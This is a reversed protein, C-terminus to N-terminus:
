GPERRHGPLVARQGLQGCFIALELFEIDLNALGHLNDLAAVRLHAFQGLGFQRLQFFFPFAVPVIQQVHGDAAFVGVAAATNQFDAGARAALFRRQEGAIKVFHVAM